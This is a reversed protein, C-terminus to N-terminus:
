KVPNLIFIRVSVGVGALSQFIFYSKKTRNTELQFFFSKKLSFDLNQPPKGMIEWIRGLTIILHMTMKRLQFGIMHSSVSNKRVIALSTTKTYVQM